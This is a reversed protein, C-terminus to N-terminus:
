REISADLIDQGLESVTMVEVYGEDRRQALHEMAHDLEDEMDGSVDHYYFTTIGGYSATLDILSMADDASPDGSARHILWPNAYRGLSPWGATFALDHDQSVLEFVDQDYMAYPYTFYNAGREFGNEVLWQHAHRVESEREDEDLNLLNQHYMGHNGIDWGADYIEELEDVRMREEGGVVRGIYGPNVMASAQIDYEELIPFGHTYQSRVVDDFQLMIIGPEPTGTVRLQDVRIERTDEEGVFAVFRITEIAGMDVDSDVGDIGFDFLQFDLAHRVRARVDMRNGYIDVMQIWPQIDGDTQIALQPRRRSLDIPPHFDREIAGRVDGEEVVIHAAQSGSLYTADDSQLSGNIEDWASLDEFDDLLEGEPEPQAPAQSDDDDSSDDGNPDGNGNGNGDESGNSDDDGDNVGSACGALLAATLGGGVQLVGRRTQYDRM